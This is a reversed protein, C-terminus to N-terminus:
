AASDFERLVCSREVPWTLLGSEALTQAGEHSWSGVGHAGSAGGGRSAPFRPQSPTTAEFNGAVSCAAVCLEHSKYGWPVVPTKLGLGYRDACCTICNATREDQTKGATTRACHLSSRTIRDVQTDGLSSM